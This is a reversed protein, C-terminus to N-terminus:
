PVRNMRHGLPAVAEGDSTTLTRYEREEQVSNQGNKSKV